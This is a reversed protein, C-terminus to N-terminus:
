KMEKDRVKDWRELVKVPSMSLDLMYATMSNMAEKPVNPHWHGEPTFVAYGAESAKVYTSALAPVGSTGGIITTVAAEADLFLSLIEDHSWFDIWKKAADVQKSDTPIAWGPGLLNLGIGQHGSLAPFPGFIFNEPLSDKVFASINWLGQPLMAARGSQFGAIGVSWPDIGANVKANFCGADAMQKTAKVARKFADDKAFKLQGKHFKDTRSEDPIGDGALGLAITFLGPTWGGKAPMLMPTIGKSALKKCAATLDTINGPIKNLGVEKLLDLNGYMGIGSLELMMFHVKGKHKMQPVLAPQMRKVWSSGTLDMLQGEEAWMHMFERDVMIVDPPNGGQLRAPMVTKTDTRSLYTLKVKIDPHKQEFKKIIQPFNAIEAAGGKWSSVELVTKAYIGTSALLILLCLGLMSFINRRKMLEIRVFNNIDIEIV